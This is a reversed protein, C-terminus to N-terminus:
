QAAAAAELLKRYKQEEQEYFTKSEEADLFRPILAGQRIYEEWQGTEFAERLVDEWYAVAEAPMEPPGVYGRFQTFTVDPHGLEVFTPIEAFPEPLREESFVGLPVVRGAELQSTVESPNFIGADIHGGLLAALVEGSGEFPVYQFQAGASQNLLDFVLNDEGGRGAGGITIGQPDAKAKEALDAFTKIGKGEPVALLLTDLALTGLPTLDELTVEADNSIMSMMQGSVFTMITHGDGRKSFTYTNGVAGSGGPKNLVVINQDVLDNQRIAEVLTRANIDSGGGASYPVVFEVNKQPAWQASAPAGVALALLAGAALSFATRM